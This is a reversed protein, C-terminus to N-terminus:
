YQQSGIRYASALALPGWFCVLFPIFPTQQLVEPFLTPAFGFVGLGLLAILLVAYIGLAWSGRWSAGRLVGVGIGVGCPWVVGLSNGGLVATLLLWAAGVLVTAILGVLGAGV